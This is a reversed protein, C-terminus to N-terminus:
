DQEVTALESILTNQLKELGTALRALTGPVPEPAGSELRDRLNAIDKRAEGIAPMAEDFAKLMEAILSDLPAKSAAGTAKSDAIETLAKWLGAWELVNPRAVAALYEGLRQGAFAPDAKVADNLTEYGYAAMGRMHAVLALLFWGFENLTLARAYRGVEEDTLEPMFLKSFPIVKGQVADALTEQAHHRAASLDFDKLSPM